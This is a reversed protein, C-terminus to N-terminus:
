QELAAAKDLRLQTQADKQKNKKKLAKDGILVEASYSYDNLKELYFTSIMYFPMVLFTAVWGGLPAGLFIFLLFYIFNYKILLWAIYLGYLGLIFYLLYAMIASLNMAYQMIKPKKLALSLAYLISCVVAWFLLLVLYSVLFYFVVNWM